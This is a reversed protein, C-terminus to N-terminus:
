QADAVPDPEDDLPETVPDAVPDEVAVPDAVPLKVVKSVETEVATVVATMTLEALPVSVAEAMVVESIREVMVESEETMVLVTPEVVM